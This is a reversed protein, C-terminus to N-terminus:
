YERDKKKLSRAQKPNTHILTRVETALHQLASIIQAVQRVVPVEVLNMRGPHLITSPDKVLKRVVTSSLVQQFSPLISAECLPCCHVGIHPGEATNEVKLNDRKQNINEM